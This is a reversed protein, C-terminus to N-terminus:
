EGTQGMKRLTGGENQSAVKIILSLLIFKYVARTCFLIGWNDDIM